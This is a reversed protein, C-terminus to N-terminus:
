AAISSGLRGFLASSTWTSFITLRTGTTTKLLVVHGHTSKKRGKQLAGLQSWRPSAAERLPRLLSELLQLEERGSVDDLHVQPTREGVRVNSERRTQDEAAWVASM